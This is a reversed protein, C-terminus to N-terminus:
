INLDSFKKKGEIYYKFIISQYYRGKKNPPAIKYRRILTYEKNLREFINPLMIYFRLHARIVAWTSMPKGELLFKIGAIGDLILKLPLIWLLNGLKENKTITMLNNRFNLYDKQPNVYQLTGGGLHYVISEPINWVSYGANKIRWCLDIEEQHAFFSKDFGGINKFLQTRIVMAAGSAWFIERPESYQGEDEEITNFIRGRCFPYSWIDLFGGAAGAYEFKHKDEISRILPQVVGISKDSDLKEVLPDLWNETVLVDSNIIVTYETEVDRLGVNYGEAYGYNQILENIKIEPYWEKVFDVSGDTSQNDILLVDFEYKSSSYEMMPLYSELLEAGNYNLIAITVKPKKQWRSKIDEIAHHANIEDMKLQEKLAELSEFRIDERLYKLISIRINRNYINQNFDFINIEINTEEQQFATPRKGIYMMGEFPMGEIDLRVAYVGSRPILKSSESIQLNATPYGLKSGLKDGHIVKGTLIYPQNLYLNATEIDGEQLAVRIKSSSVANDDVEQKPIEIVTFHKDKQYERLLQIDGMRNLGFRHDYGIVIYSPHFNQIIFKEVYERPAQRSFEFSFPVVVVNKIGFSKMLHLKEELTNLQPIKRDGADVITRPHPYFTVVVSEGNIESALKTVRHLIKQHGIHVGDFSGITIVTNKFDPLDELNRYINM